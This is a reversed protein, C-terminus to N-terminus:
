RNFYLKLGCTLSLTLTITLYNFKGRKILKFKQSLQYNLLSPKDTLVKSFSQAKGKRTKKKIQKKM